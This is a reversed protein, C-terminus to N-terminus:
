STMGRAFMSGAVLGLYTTGALMAASGVGLILIALLGEMQAIKFEVKIEEFSFSFKM